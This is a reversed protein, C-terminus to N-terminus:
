RPCSLSHHELVTEKLVEEIVKSTQELISLYPAVYVIKRYGQNEGFWTAM